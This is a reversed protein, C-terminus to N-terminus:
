YSFYNKKGKEVLVFNMTKLVNYIIVKYKKFASFYRPFNHFRTSLQPFVKKSPPSHPFFAGGTEVNKWQM